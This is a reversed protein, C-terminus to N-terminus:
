SARVPRSRRRDDGGQVPVVHLAPQEVRDRSPTGAFRRRARPAAARRSPEARHHRERREHHRRSRAALRGDADPARAAAGPTRRHRARGRAVRARALVPSALAIVELAEDLAERSIPGEVLSAGPPRCRRPPAGAGALVTSRRRAASLEVARERPMMESRAAFARSRWRCRSVLREIPSCARHSRRRAM